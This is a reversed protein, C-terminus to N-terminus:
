EAVRNGGAVAGAGKATEPEAGPSKEPNMNRVNWAVMGWLVQGTRASHEVAGDTRTGTRSARIVTLDAQAKASRHKVPCLLQPDLRALRALTPADMRNDMKRNEVILRV